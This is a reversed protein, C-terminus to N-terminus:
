QSAAQQHSPDNIEANLGKLQDPGRFLCPTTDVCKSGFGAVKCSHRVFLEWHRPCIYRSSASVDM